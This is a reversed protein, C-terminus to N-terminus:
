RWAEVWWLIVKNVPPWVLVGLFMGWMYGRVDLYSNDDIRWDEIWQYFICMQCWLVGLVACPWDLTLAMLVGVSIGAGHPVHIVIRRLETKNM